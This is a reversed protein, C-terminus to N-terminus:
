GSQGHVSKTIMERLEAQHSEYQEFTISGSTLRSELQQSLEAVQLDIVQQVDVNQEQALDALTRGNYLADHIDEDSLGGLVHQLDTGAEPRSSDRTHVADAQGPLGLTANAEENQFVSSISIVIAITGAIIIQKPSM